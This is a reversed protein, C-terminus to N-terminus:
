TGLIYTHTHTYNSHFCCQSNWYTNIVRVDETVNQRCLYMELHFQNTVQLVQQDTSESMSCTLFLLYSMTVPRFCPRSHYISPCINHASSVDESALVMLLFRVSLDIIQRKVVDGQIGLSTSINLSSHTDCTAM